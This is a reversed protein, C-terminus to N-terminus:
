QDPTPNGEGKVGGPADPIFDHGGQDPIEQPDPSQTADSKLEVTQASDATSKQNLQNLAEETSLPSGKSGSLKEVAEELSKVKKELETIRPIARMLDIQEQTM